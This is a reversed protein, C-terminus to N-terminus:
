SGIRRARCCRTSCRGSRPRSARSGASWATATSGPAFPATPMHRARRALADDEDVAARKTQECVQRFQRFTTRGAADVLKKEAAPNARGAASAEQAKDPSLKGARFADAIRPQDEMRRAAKLRGAAHWRSVPPTPTGVPPTAIGSRRYAKTQEVRRAFMSEGAVCKRGLRNLRRVAVAADAGSFCNPDEALVSDVLREAENLRELM